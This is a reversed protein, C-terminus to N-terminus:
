VAFLTIYNHTRTWAKLAIMSENIASLLLLITLPSLLQILHGELQTTNYLSKPLWLIFPAANISSARDCGTEDNWTMEVIILAM